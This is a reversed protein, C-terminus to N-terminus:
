RTAVEEQARGAGYRIVSLGGPVRRYILSIVIVGLQHYGIKKSPSAMKKKKKLYFEDATGEQSFESSTQVQFARVFFNVLM